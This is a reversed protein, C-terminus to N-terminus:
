GWFQIQEEAFFFFYFADRQPRSKKSAKHKM